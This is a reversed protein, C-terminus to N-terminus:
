HLCPRSGGFLLNGNDNQCIQVADDGAIQGLCKCRYCESFRRRSWGYMFFDQQGPFYQRPILTRVLKRMVAEPHHRFAIMQQHFKVIASCKWNKWLRFRLEEGLWPGNSELERLVIM